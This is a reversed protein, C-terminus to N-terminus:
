SDIIYGVFKVTRIIEPHLKKRIHAIHVNITELVKESPEYDGWVKEYLFERDLVKGQNRILIDLLDYEKPSLDIRQEGHLIKHSELDVTIAEYTFHSTGPTKTVGNRRLINEIRLVLEELDFPKM